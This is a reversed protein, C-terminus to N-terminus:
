FFNIKIKIRFFTYYVLSFFRRYLKYPVFGRLNMRTKHIRTYLHTPAEVGIQPIWLDEEDQPHVGRPFPHYRQPPMHLHSVTTINTRADCVYVHKFTRTHTHTHARIHTLRVSTVVHCVRRGQFIVPPCTGNAFLEMHSWSLAPVRGRARVSPRYLCSHPHISLLLPRAM